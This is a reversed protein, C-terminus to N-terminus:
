VIVVFVIYIIVIHEIIIPTCVIVASADRRILMLVSASQVFCGRLRMFNEVKHYKLHLGKDVIKYFCPVIDSVSQVSVLLALNLHLGKDVIRYFCPVIYSVSNFSFSRSICICRQTYLGSLISTGPHTFM